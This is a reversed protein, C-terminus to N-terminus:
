KAILAYGGESEDLVEWGRAEIQARLEDSRKWNKTARAERREEALVRVEEPAVPEVLPVGLVDVLGLGLVEDMAVIAQTKEEDSATGKLVEWVVALAQPTNLDAELALVFEQVVEGTKAAPLLRCANRLKKLANQAGELAEWTFNLKSRYHATLYFYRLALPDFGKAVVEDLTFANGESKGMRRGDVTLFENHLWYNALPRDYAAESQAIENEHHVAIHDIGGCHIDFPQGLYKVSMASCEIHWGPFGMGWPSEWEMQRQVDTPSFKWLAFDTANKKEENVEIRTGAEKEELKQGSLKGYPAFKATDFYIGDSTRYTFGKKELDHILAIQEPINETARPTNTPRLINLREEDAFFRSEMERAIEYAARKQRVAEREVKDEGADGDGVLHGVDTINMVHTVSYGSSELMRRLVDEFVYSRLNGITAPNYVTPGCCYMGVNGSVIPEFPELKKHLSNWLNLM